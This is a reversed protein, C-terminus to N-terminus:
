LLITNILNVANNIPMARQKVLENSVGQIAEYDDLFLALDYQKSNYSNIHVLVYCRLHLADLQRILDIDQATMNPKLRKTIKNAFVHKIYVTQKDKHYVYTDKFGNVPKITANVGNLLSAGDM